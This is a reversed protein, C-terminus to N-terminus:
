KEVQEHEHIWYIQNGSESFFSVENVCLCIGFSMYWFCGEPLVIHLNNQKLEGDDIGDGFVNEFTNFGAFPNERM